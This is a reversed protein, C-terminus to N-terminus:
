ITKTRIQRGKPCFYYPDHGRKARLPLGGVAAAPVSMGPLIFREEGESHEPDPMLGGFEDAFISRVEQFSVGHKRLNNANKRECWEFDLYTM